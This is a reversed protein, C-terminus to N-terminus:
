AFGFDKISNSLWVLVEQMVKPNKQNLAFDVAISSVFALSTAEAIATMTECVLSGNKADGFKEMIDNICCNATTTSFTSNEALYKIIALKVQLVQFNTDKLGPKRSLGKVVAQAPVEKGEMSKVSEFFQKAADL